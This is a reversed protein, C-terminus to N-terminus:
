AVIVVRVDMVNTFTPGSVLLDGLRHFFRHSDNNRLFAEADLGLRKARALTTGDALAGAASTPGDTGDTAGSLIV